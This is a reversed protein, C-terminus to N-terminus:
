YVRDDKNSFASGTLLQNLEEDDTTEKAKKADVIAQNASIVNKGSDEVNDPLYYSIMGTSEDKASLGSESQAKAVEVRDDIEKTKDRLERVKESLKSVNSLHSPNNSYDNATMVDSRAKEAKDAYGALSAVVNKMNEYNLYIYTM